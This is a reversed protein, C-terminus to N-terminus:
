RGLHCQDDSKVFTHDSFATKPTQISAHLYPKPVSHLPTTVHKADARTGDRRRRARSICDMLAIRGLLADHLYAAEM